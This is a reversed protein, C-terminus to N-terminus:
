REKQQKDRGPTMVLTPMLVGWIWSQSIMDTIFYVDSM